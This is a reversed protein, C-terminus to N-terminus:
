ISTDKASPLYSFLYQVPARACRYEDDYRYWSFDFSFLFTKNSYKQHKITLRKKSSPRVFFRYSGNNIQRFKEGRFM